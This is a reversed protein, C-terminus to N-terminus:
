ENTDRGRGVNHEIQEQRTKIIAHDKENIKIERKDMRGKTVM